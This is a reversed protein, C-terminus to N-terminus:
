FHGRVRPRECFPARHYYGSSEGSDIESALKHIADHGEYEDGHIGATALLVPGSAKGNVVVTPIRIERAGTHSLKTWTFSKEGASVRITGIEFSQVTM